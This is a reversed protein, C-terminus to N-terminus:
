LMRKIAAGHAPPAALADACLARAAEMLAEPPVSRPDDHYLALMAGREALEPMWPGLTHGLQAFARGIQNYPGVHRVTALRRAPHASIDVQM